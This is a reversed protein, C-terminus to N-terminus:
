NVIRIPVGESIPTGNTTGLGVVTHEKLGSVIQVMTLNIAGVQVLTRHLAGNSVVYVYDRGGEIHLAERPVTLANKVEQTIVTVVVNTNPLLVGNSDEISVLVEGVFRTGYAIITSPLRTIHGHFQMDPKAGWVISVPDNLHLDGIEPEDFYARVQLKSLDAMQLVEGGPEIYGYQTVPLSYVTGAFPARVNSQAIVQNAAAVAAQAEAVSSHARTLDTAAYPKTKQEQLSQLSATAIQLRTQAQAEESPAAAGKAELKKIVDLDRAAQDHDLQAKAINSSLALQEQHSGGGEVSQTASEATRLAAIATALRARASTDDLSVLLQGPRVQQGVHIYVNKVTTAEPAHAEFIHLPEVRGSTSSPKVLDQVQAEAVRLPLKDRTLHRVGYFIVVLAIAAFTWLVGSSITKRREEAM